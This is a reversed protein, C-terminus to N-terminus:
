NVLKFIVIKICISCNVALYGCIVVHVMIRALCYKSSYQFLVNSIVYVLRKIAIRDNTIRQASLDLAPKVNSM